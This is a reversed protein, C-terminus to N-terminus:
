DTTPAVWEHSRSRAMSPRRLGCHEALVVYVGFVAVAGFIAARRRAATRLHWWAAPFQRGVSAAPRDLSYLLRGLAWFWVAAAPVVGLIPDNAWSPADGGLSALALAGVPVLLVILVASWRGRSRGADAGASVTLGSMRYADGTM